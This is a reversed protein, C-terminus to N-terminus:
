LVGGKTDDSSSKYSDVYCWNSCDPNNNNIMEEYVERKFIIWKTNNGNAFMIKSWKM